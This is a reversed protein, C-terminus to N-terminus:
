KGCGARVEIDLVALGLADSCPELEVLEGRTWSSPTRFVELGGDTARTYCGIEGNQFCGRETPPLAGRCALPTQTSEACGADLHVRWGSIPECCLSSPGCTGADLVCVEPTSSEPVSSDALEGERDGSVNQGPRSTSCALVVVLSVPPLVLSMTRM